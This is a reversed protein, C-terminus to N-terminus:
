SGSPDNWCQPNAWFGTAVSQLAVLVTEWGVLRVILGMMAVVERDCTSGASTSGVSPKNKM